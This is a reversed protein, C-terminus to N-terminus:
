GFDPNSNGEAPDFFSWDGQSLVLHRYLLAYRANAPTSGRGTLCCNEYPSGPARDVLSAICCAHKDDYALSYKYGEMVLEDLQGSPFETELDLSSLRLVDDKSLAYNIFRFDPKGPTGAKGNKTGVKKSM